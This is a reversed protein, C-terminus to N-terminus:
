IFDLIMMALDNWRPDGNRGYVKAHPIRCTKWKGQEGACGQLLHWKGQDHIRGSGKEGWLPLDIGGSKGEPLGEEASRTAGRVKELPGDKCGPMPLQHGVFRGPYFSM